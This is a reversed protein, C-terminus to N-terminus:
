PHFTDRVDIVRQAEEETGPVVNRIKLGNRLSDSPVTFTFYFNNSVESSLDQPQTVHAVVEVNILPRSSNEVQTYIVCSKLHLFDGANVPKLFDVHDVEVFCPPTRAFSYATVYALEYAKRMLYGGFIQGHINNKEPQCVLSNQLYTEKILINNNNDKNALLLENLNDKKEEKKKKRMKNREEAEEWLHQEKENQPLIQNIKVSKGTKDKAVFTFNATLSVSETSNTPEPPSQKVELQIELSSCGVWTVAGEITIDNDICIPKKLIMNDVSATVLILSRAKGDDCSCHKYSITGALADLDELLKEIRIENIPNRYRERLEFDSSFRYVVSTRSRSPTKAILHDNISSALPVISSYNWFISSRAEWLANKVPSHNMFLLLNMNITTTSSPDSITSATSYQRTQSFHISQSTLISSVLKNEEHKFFHCCKLPKKPLKM